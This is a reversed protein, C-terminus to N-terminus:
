SGVQMLWGWEDELDENEGESEEDDDDEDEDSGKEDGLLGYKLNKEVQAKDNKWPVYYLQYAIVIPGDMKGSASWNRNRDIAGNAQLGAAKHPDLPVGADLKGGRHSKEAVYREMDTAVKVGTIMFLRVPKTPDLRLRRLAETNKELEDLRKKVYQRLTDGEMAIRYTEVKGIKLAVDGEESSEFGASIGLFSCLKAKLNAALRKSMNFNLKVDLETAHLQMLVGTPGPGAFPQQDVKRRERFINGIAIQSTPQGPEPVLIYSHESAM